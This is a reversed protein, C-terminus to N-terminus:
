RNDYSGFCCSGGNVNIAYRHNAFINSRIETDSITGAGLSGWYIVSASAFNGGTATVTVDINFYNHSILTNNAALVMVIDNASSSVANIINVKQIM